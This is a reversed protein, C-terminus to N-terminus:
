GYLLKTEGKIYFLPINIDGGFAGFRIKFPIGIQYYYTNVQSSVNNYQVICVDETSVTTSTNTNDAIFGECPDSTSGYSNIYKTSFGNNEYIEQIPGGINEPTQYKEIVNIIQNKVRFARAYNFSVGLIIVFVALMGLAWYMIKTFGLAERM